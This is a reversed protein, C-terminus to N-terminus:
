VLCFRTYLRWEVAHSNSFRRVGTSAASERFPQVRSQWGSLRSKRSLYASTETLVLPWKADSQKLCCRTQCNAVRATSCSRSAAAVTRISVKSIRRVIVPAGFACLGQCYTGTASSSAPAVTSTRGYSYEDHRDIASQVRVRLHMLLVRVLVRVVRSTSTRYPMRYSLELIIQPIARIGFPNYAAIATSEFTCTRKQPCRYNSLCRRTSTAVVTRVLRFQLETGYPVWLLQLNRRVIWYCVVAAISLLIPHGSM